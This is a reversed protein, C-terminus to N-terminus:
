YTVVGKEKQNTLKWYEQASIKNRSFLSAPNGKRENKRKTRGIKKGGKGGATKAM